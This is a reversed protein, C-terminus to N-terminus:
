AGPLGAREDEGDHVADRARRRHDACAALISQGRTPDRDSRTRGYVYRRAEERTMGAAQLTKVAKAKVERGLRM